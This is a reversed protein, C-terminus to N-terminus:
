MFHHRSVGVTESSNKIICFVHVMCYCKCSISGLNYKNTDIYLVEKYINLEIQLTYYDLSSRVLLILYYKTEGKTVKSIVLLNFLIQNTLAGAKIYTIINQAFMQCVSHKSGLTKQNLELSPSICSKYWKSHHTHLTFTFSHM